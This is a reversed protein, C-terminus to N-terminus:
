SAAMKAAAAAAAAAAKKKVALATRQKAQIKAKQSKSLKRKKENAISVAIVDREQAVSALDALVAALATGLRSCQGRSVSHARLSLTALRGALDRQDADLDCVTSSGNKKSVMQLWRSKMSQPCIGFMYREIVQKFEDAFLLSQGDNALSAGARGPSRTSVSEPSRLYM